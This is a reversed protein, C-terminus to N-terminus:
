GREPRRRPRRLQAKRRSRQEATEVFLSARQWLRELPELTRRLRRRRRGVLVVTQQELEGVAELGGALRRARESHTELNLGLGSGVLVHILAHNAEVAGLPLM